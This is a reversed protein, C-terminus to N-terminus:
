VILFNVKLLQSIVYLSQAWMFPVRGTALYETSGPNALEEDVNELPVSYLEPVLRIGHSTHVLLSELHRIYPEATDPEGM